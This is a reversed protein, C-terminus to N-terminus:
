VTNNNNTNSANKHKSILNKFQM